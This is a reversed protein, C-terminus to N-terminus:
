KQGWKRASFNLHMGLGLNYPSTPPLASIWPLCGPELAQQFARTLGVVMPHGSTQEGEAEPCQAAPATARWANSECLSEPVCHPEPLHTQM